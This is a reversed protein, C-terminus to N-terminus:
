EEKILGIELANRYTRKASSENSKREGNIINFFQKLGTIGDGNKLIKVICLNQVGISESLIDLDTGGIQYVALRYADDSYEAKMAEIDALTKLGLTMFVQLYPGPNFEVLEARNISAIRKNLDEFPKIKMYEKFSDGNLELASFDGNAALESVRRRYDTIDRIIRNFQEDALEVLGALRAMERRYQRPIEIASKYGTDHNVTSWVHQLATRMQIEFRIKNIEPHEPDYYMSEPISCIYHLSLYGFSDSKQIQRKDVSDGWDVNFTKEVLAAIKDVEDTYFTIVRMGVLDTIDNISHYKEGKLELKGALSKPDKVRAEMATIYIHNEAIIDRVAKFAIDKIKEYTQLNSVFDNYLKQNHQNM